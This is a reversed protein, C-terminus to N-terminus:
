LALASRRRESISGFPTSLRQIVLLPSGFLASPLEADLSCLFSRMSTFMFQHADPPWDM